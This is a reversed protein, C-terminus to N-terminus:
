KGSVSICSADVSKQKILLLIQSHLAVYEIHHGTLPWNWYWFCLLSTNMFSFISTSFIYSNQKYFDEFICLCFGASQKDIFNNRSELFNEQIATSRQVSILIDEPYAKPLSPRWQPQIGDATRRWRAHILGSPFAQLLVRCSSNHQKLPGPPLQLIVPSYCLLLICIEIDLM